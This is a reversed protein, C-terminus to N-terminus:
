IIGKLERRINEGASEIGKDVCIYSLGQINEPLDLKGQYLLIVRGTKRRFIGMFYGMEFIIDQRSRTTNANSYKDDSTLLVFVVNTISAYFEFKELITKGGNAKEGLIIPEDMKLTNQLYNKLALYLAKNNGSVIYPKYSHRIDRSDISNNSVIFYKSPNCIEKEFAAKFCSLLIQLNNFITNLENISDVKKIDGYSVVSIRRIFTLLERMMVLQNINKYAIYRNCVDIIEEICRCVYEHIPSCRFCLFRYWEDYNNNQFLERNIGAGELIAAIIGIDNYPFKRAFLDYYSIVRSIGTPIDGDIFKVYDNIYCVSLMRAVSLEHVNSLLKGAFLSRTMGKYETNTNIECIISKNATIIEMDKAPLIIPLNEQEHWNYIVSKIGDTAGRMKLISPVYTSYKDAESFYCDYRTKDFFYLQRNRELFEEVTICDSIMEIQNTEYVINLFHYDLDTSDGIEWISSLPAYIISDKSFLLIKLAYNAGFIREINLSRFM